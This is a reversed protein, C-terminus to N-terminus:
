MGSHFFHVMYRRFIFNLLSSTLHAEFTKCIPFPELYIRANINCHGGASYQDVNRGRRAREVCSTAHCQVILIRM